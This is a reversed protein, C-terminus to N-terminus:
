ERTPNGVNWRLTVRLACSFWIGQLIGNVFRQMEM